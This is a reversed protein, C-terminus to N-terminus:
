LVFKEAVNIRKISSIPIKFRTNDKIQVILNTSDYGVVRVVYITPNTSTKISVTSRLFALKWLIAHNINEDHINFQIM